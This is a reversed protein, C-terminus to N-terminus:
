SVNNGIMQKLHRPLSDMEILYIVDKLITQGHMGILDIKFNKM